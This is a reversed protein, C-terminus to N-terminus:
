SGRSGQFRARVQGHSTGHNRSVRRSRAGPLGSNDGLALPVLFIIIILGPACSRGQENWGGDVMGVVTTM